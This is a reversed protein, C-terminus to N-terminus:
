RVGTTKKQRSACPNFTHTLDLQSLTLKRVLRLKVLILVVFRSHVSISWALDDVHLGIYFGMM